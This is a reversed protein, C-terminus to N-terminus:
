ETTKGGIDDIINVGVSGSLIVNENLLGYRKALLEGAKLRDKPVVNKSVTKSYIKNKLHFFQKEELQGRMTKTLFEMVEDATAVTDKKKSNMKESIYKKVELNKLLQNGLSYATKKSYGARIAAQTANLDILYEDAFKQQRENM